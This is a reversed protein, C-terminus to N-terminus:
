NSNLDNNNDIQQMSVSMDETNGDDPVDDKSM